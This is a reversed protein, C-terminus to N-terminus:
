VACGSRPESKATTSTDLSSSSTTSSGQSALSPVRIPVQDFPIPWYRPYVDKTARMTRRSDEDRIMRKRPTMRTKDEHLSRMADSDFFLVTVPRHISSLGHKAVSRSPTPARGHAPSLPRSIPDIPRPPLLVPSADELERIATFLSTPILAPTHAM